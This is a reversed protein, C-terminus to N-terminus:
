ETLSALQEDHKDENEVGFTNQIILLYEIFLQM